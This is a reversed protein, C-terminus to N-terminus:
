CNRIVYIKKTDRFNQATVDMTEELNPVGGGKRLSGEREPYKKKRFCILFTIGRM